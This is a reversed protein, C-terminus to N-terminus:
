HRQDQNTCLRLSKGLAGLFRSSRSTPTGYTPHATTPGPVWYGDASNYATANLVAASAALPVPLTSFGATNNTTMKTYLLAPNGGFATWGAVPQALQSMMIYKQMTQPDISM